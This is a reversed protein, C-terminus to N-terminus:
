PIIRLAKLFVVALGGVVLVGWLTNVSLQLWDLRRELITVRERQEPAEELHKDYPACKDCMREKIFVIDKRIEALQIKIDEDGM